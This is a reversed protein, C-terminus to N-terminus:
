EVRFGVLVFRGEAQLEKVPVTAVPLESAGDRLVLDFVHGASTSWEVLYVAGSQDLPLAVSSADPTLELEAVTQVRTAEIRRLKLYLTDHRRFSAVEVRPAFVATRAVGLRESGAPPAALFSAAVPQLREKLSEVDERLAGLRGRVAGLLEDRERLAGELRRKDDEISQLRGRLQEAEDAPSQPSAALLLSVVVPIM